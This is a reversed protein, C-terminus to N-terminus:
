INTEYDLHFYFSTGIVGLILFQSIHVQVLSDINGEFYEVGSCCILNIRTCVYMCVYM